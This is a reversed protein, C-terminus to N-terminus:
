GCDTQPHLARVSSNVLGFLLKVRFIQVVASKVTIDIRAGAQLALGGTMKELHSKLEEAAKKEVVTADEPLRIEFGSTFLPLLLATYILYKM